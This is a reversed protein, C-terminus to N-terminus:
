VKEARWLYKCLNCLWIIHLFSFIFPYIMVAFLLNLSRGAIFFLFILFMLASVSPQFCSFGLFMITLVPMLIHYAFGHLLVLAKAKVSLQGSVSLVSAYGKAWRSRQIILERLTRKAKENGLTESSVKINLKDINTILGLQLDDLFTDQVPLSTVFFKSRLIFCQGPISIGLSTKWLFPRLIKHSILKDVNALQPFFGKNSVGIRGWGIAASSDVFSIIFDYLRAAQVTIDNDISLIISDPFEVIIQKIRKYKTRGNDKYVRFPYEAKFELNHSTFICLCVKIEKRNIIDLFHLFSSSLVEDDRLYTAVILNM